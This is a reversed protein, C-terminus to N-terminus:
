PHAKRQRQRCASRAQHHTPPTWPASRTKEVSTTFADSSGEFYEALPRGATSSPYQEIM